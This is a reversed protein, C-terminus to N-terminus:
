VFHEISVVYLSVFVDPMGNESEGALTSSTPQIRFGLWKLGVLLGSLWSGFGFYGCAQPM